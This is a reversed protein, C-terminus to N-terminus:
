GIDIQPFCLRRAFHAVNRKSRGLWLFLRAAFENVFRIPLPRERQGAQCRQQVAFPVPSILDAIPITRARRAGSVTGKLLGAIQWSAAARPPHLSQKAPLHFRGDSVFGSLM